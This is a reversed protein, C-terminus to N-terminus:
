FLIQKTICQLSIVIKVSENTVNCVKNNQSLISTTSVRKMRFLSKHFLNKSPWTSIMQSIRWFSTSLKTNANEVAMQCVSHEYAFICLINIAWFDYKECTTNYAKSSYSAFLIKINNQVSSPSASFKKIAGRISLFASCSLPRPPLTILRCNWM